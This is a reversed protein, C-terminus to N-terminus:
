VCCYPLYDSETVEAHLLGLIMRGCPIPTSNRYRSKFYSVGHLLTRRSSSIIVYSTLFYKRRNHFGLKMIANVLAWWQDTDQAVQIWDV